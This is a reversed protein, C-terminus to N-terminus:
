HFNGHWFGARNTWGNRCFVSKHCVCVSLCLVVAFVASMAYRPLFAFCRDTQGTKTTIIAFAGLSESPLLALPSRPWRAYRGQKGLGICTNSM